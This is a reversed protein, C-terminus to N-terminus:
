FPYLLSRYLMQAFDESTKVNRCLCIVRGIFMTCQKIPQELLHFENREKVPLWGLKIVDTVNAYGNKVFSAPCKQVRQSKTQLYQALPYMVIDNYDLKSLILSEALQKKLATPALNKIKKIISLVAFCSSATKNHSRDVKLKRTGVYTFNSPNYEKLFKM